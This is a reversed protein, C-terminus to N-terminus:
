KRMGYDEIQLPYKAPEDLKGTQRLRCCARSDIYMENWYRLAIGHVIHPLDSAEEGLVFQRLAADVDNFGLRARMPTTGSFRVNIEFCVPRGDAAVRLQINSPGMPRLAAAIRVAEARVDPFEGAEARYTTGQLLERRMVITGRVRGERDNFCGATYETDPGGLYEQVVYGPLSTAYALEAPSRIEVLGEASKGRRPKAFLPYGCDRLLKDVAARDEAAAFRPFNLGQSELWRCTALKDDGISLCAPPSVICVAGCAQKIERAHLALISLVPEVGSLVAQVGESRCTAVLWEVFGPDDARPSVYARDVAYLGASLPSVCAGVVRCSLPSLALAKLIGQSVNGGVGLVLVTLRPSM